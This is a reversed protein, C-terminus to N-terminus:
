SRWGLRRMLWVGIRHDLSFDPRPPRGEDIDSVQTSHQVTDDAIMEVGPAVLGWGWGAHGHWLLAFGVAALVIGYYLHHKEAARHLRVVCLLGDAALVAATVLAGLRPAHTIAGVVVGFGLATVLTKWATAVASDAGVPPTGTASM